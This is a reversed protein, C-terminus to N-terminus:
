ILMEKTLNIISEKGANYPRFRIKSGYTFSVFTVKLNPDTPLGMLKLFIILDSEFYTESYYKLEDNPLLFCIQNINNTVLSYVLFLGELYQIVSYTKAVDLDMIPQLISLPPFIDSIKILKDDFSESPAYLKKRGFIDGIFTRVDPNTVTLLWNFFNNSKSACIKALKLSNVIEVNTNSEEIKRGSDFFAGWATLDYLIIQDISQVGLLKRLLKQYYRVGDKKLGNSGFYWLFLHVSGLNPLLELVDNVSQTPHFSCLGEM